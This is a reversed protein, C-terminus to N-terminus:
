FFFYSKLDVSSKCNLSISFSCVLNLVLLLFVYHLSSCFFIFYLISLCYFILSVLIQNKTFVLLISLGSVEKANWHNLNQAELALSTPKIGTQPVLLGYATCHLWFIKTAERTAWFTFFRGAICSVWTRDWPQSSGRFFTIALWELIRAQLIGHVSSVPLSCDM